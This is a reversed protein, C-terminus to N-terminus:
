ATAVAPAQRASRWFCVLGLVAVLAYLAANSFLLTSPQSKVTYIVLPLFYASLRWGLARAHVAPLVFAFGMVWTLYWEQNTTNVLMFYLLAALLCAEVSGTFADRRLRPLMALLLLAYLGIYSLRALRGLDAYAFLTGSWGLLEPLLFFSMFDVFHYISNRYVGVGGGAASTFAPLAEPYMAYCLAVAAVLGAAGRAVDALNARWGRGAQLLAALGLIPLYILPFYKICFAAGMAVGVWFWRRQALALLALLIPVNMWHDNHACTLVSFGIIPNAAYSFLAVRAWGEGGRLALRWVVASAVAHLGLHAAKHLALALKEHGGSLWAIGAAIKQFLPGYSSTGGTFGPFINAFMEDGAFGPVSAPPARYPSLGHHAEVWGTGIYFFVDPSLYPMGVVFLLSVLAAYRAISRPALSEPRQALRAALALFLLGMVGTLVLHLLRGQDVWDAALEPPWHAFAGVFFDFEHAILTLPTQWWLRASVAVVALVSLAYAVLLLTLLVDRPPPGGM